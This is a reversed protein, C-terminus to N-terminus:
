WNKVAFKQQVTLNPEVQFDLANMNRISFQNFNSFLTATGIQHSHMTQWAVM